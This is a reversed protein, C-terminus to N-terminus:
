FCYSTSHVQVDSSMLSLTFKNSSFDEADPSQKRSYFGVCTVFNDLRFKDEHWKLGNGRTRDSIVKCFIYIGVWLPSYPGETLVCSVWLFSLNGLTDLVLGHAGPVGMRAMLEGTLATQCTSGMLDRVNRSTVELSVDWFNSPERETGRLNIQMGAVACTIFYNPSSYLCHIKPQTTKHLSM